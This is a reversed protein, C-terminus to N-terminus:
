ARWPLFIPWILAMTIAVLFEVTPGEISGLPRGDHRPIDFKLRGCRILWFVVCIGIGWWLMIIESM